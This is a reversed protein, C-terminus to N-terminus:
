VLDLPTRRPEELALGLAVLKEVTTAYSTHHIGRIGLTEAVQVFM